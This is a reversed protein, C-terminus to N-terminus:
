PWVGFEVVTDDSLEKTAHILHFSSLHENNSGRIPKIRDIGRKTQNM